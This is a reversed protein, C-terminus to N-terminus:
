EERAKLYIKQFIGYDSYFDYHCTKLWIGRNVLEEKIKEDKGVRVRVFGYLLGSIYSEVAM